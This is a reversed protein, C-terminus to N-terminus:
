GDLRYLRNVNLTVTQVSDSAVRYTSKNSYHYVKSILRVKNFTDTANMSDITESLYVGNTPPTFSIDINGYYGGTFSSSISASGSGSVSEVRNLKIPNSAM